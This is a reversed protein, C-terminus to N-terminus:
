TSERIVLEVPLRVDRTEPYEGNLLGILLRVAKAAKAFIDQHITTLPPISIRSYNIDDFGAVALDGPVRTNKNFLFILAELAYFDSLFFLADNKKWEPLLKEFQRLRKEEDESLFVYRDTNYPIHAEDLARRFGRWREHDVGMDANAFLWIDRYGSKVLYETMLFGGAFDDLGVNYFNETVKGIVDISIVPKETLRNLEHCDGARFSVAIIGDVNWAAVARFIENVDSSVYLMLYYRMEHLEKEIAGLLQGYFPDAFITREYSKEANIVMCVIQSKSNNLHRLGLKEVYGLKELLASIEGFTEPSVRARNGHLVNSITATSVGALRAIEKITAM